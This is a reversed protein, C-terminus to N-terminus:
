SAHTSLLKRQKEEIEIDCGKTDCSVHDNELHLTASSKVWASQGYGSSLVALAEAM